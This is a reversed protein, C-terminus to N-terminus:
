LLNKEYTKDKSAKKWEEIKKTYAEKQKEM